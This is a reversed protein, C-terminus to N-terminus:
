LFQHLLQDTEMLPLGMVAHYSGDIRSVFRGGSGQIGYSGAKDWPEGSEWYQEIEQESLPRFWVQTIVTKTKTTEPTALTVATMVQHQRGSLALLMRKADKFDKPKELIVGDIVVITDSGLVPVTKKEIHEITNGEALAKIGAQAKDKSLREVYMLPTEHAQHVEEVDVSLVEFQYGLQALLEKRRPSGSALFVQTAM